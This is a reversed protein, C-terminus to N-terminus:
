EQEPPQSPGSLSMCYFQCPSSYGNVFSSFAAGERQTQSELLHINSVNAFVFVQSWLMLSWAKVDSRKKGELLECSM